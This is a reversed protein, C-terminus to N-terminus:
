PSRGRRRERVLDAATVCADRDSLGNRNPLAARLDAVLTVGFDDLTMLTRRASDYETDAGVPGSARANGLHRGPEKTQPQDEQDRPPHEGLHASNAASILPTGETTLPTGNGPSRLEPPGRDAVGSVQTLATPDATVAREDPDLLGIAELLDEPVTLRYLSARASRGAGGGRHEMEILGLRILGDRWRRVTASSKGTVAMLRADGPRISTGDSDGYTALLFAFGKLPFPCRDDNIRRIIREWDFRGLPILGAVPM